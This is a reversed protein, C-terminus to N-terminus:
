LNVKLIKSLDKFMMKIAQYLACFIVAPLTIVFALAFMILWFVLALVMCIKDIAWNMM